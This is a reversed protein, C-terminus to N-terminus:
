WSNWSGIRRMSPSKGKFNVKWPIWLGFCLETRSFDQQQPREKLEVVSVSTSLFLALPPNKELRCPGQKTKNRHCRKKMVARQWRVPPLVPVPATRLERLPFYFTTATNCVSIFHDISETCLIMVRAATVYLGHLDAWAALRLFCLDRHSFLGESAALSQEHHCIGAFGASLLCLCNSPQLNSALRIEM